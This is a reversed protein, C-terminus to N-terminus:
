RKKGPKSIPVYKKETMNKKRKKIPEVQGGRKVEWKDQASLISPRKGGSM